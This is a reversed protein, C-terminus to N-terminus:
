NFRSTEGKGSNDSITKLYEAIVALLRAEESGKGSPGGTVDHHVDFAGAYNRPRLSERQLATLESRQAGRISGRFEPQAEILEQKMNGIRSILSAVAGFGSGEAGAAGIRTDIGLNISARSRQQEAVLASRQAAREAAKANIVNTPEGNNRMAQLQEATTADFSTTQAAFTNQGASLGAVIAGANSSAISASDSRSYGANLGAYEAVQQVQLWQTQRSFLGYKRISATLERRQSEGLRTQAAGRVNGAGAQSAAQAGAMNGQLVESGERNIIDNQVQLRAQGATQLAALKAQQAGIAGPSAGEDKMRQITDRVEQLEADLGSKLVAREKAISGQTFGIQENSAEQKIAIIQRSTSRIESLQEADYARLAATEKASTAANDADRKQTISKGEFDIEGASLTKSSAIRRIANGAELNTNSTELSFRNTIASRGLLGAGTAQQRALRVANRNEDIREGSDISAVAQEAQHLREEDTRLGAGRAFDPRDIRSLITFADRAYYGIGGIGSKVSALNERAAAAVGDYKMTLGPRVFQDSYAEALQGVGRFALYAAAMPRIGYGRGGGGGSGGGGGGGSSAGGRMLYSWNPSSSPQMGSVISNASQQMMMSFNPSSAGYPIIGTGGGSGMGLSALQQRAQSLDLTVPVRVSMNGMASNLDSRLRATDIKFGVTIVLRSADATIQKAESVAAKLRSNDGAIWVTAGGLNYGGSIRSM